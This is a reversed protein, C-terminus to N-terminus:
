EGVKLVLKGTTKRGELDSHASAVDSLAYVKHIGVEVKGSTLFEFLESSYKELEERTVVYMNYTPRILRVNKAGL